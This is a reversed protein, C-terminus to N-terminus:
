MFIFIDEAFYVDSNIPMLTVIISILGSQSDIKTLQSGMGAHPQSAEFGSVYRFIEDMKKLSISIM